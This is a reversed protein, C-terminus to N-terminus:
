NPRDPRGQPRTNCGKGKWWNQVWVPASGFTEGAIIGYQQSAEQCSSPNLWTMPAEGTKWLNISFAGPDTYTLGYAGNFTGIYDSGWPDVGRQAQWGYPDIRAGYANDGWASDIVQFDHYREGTLNTLRTTSMHLHSGSCSGKCGATGIVQGERVTDGTRVATTDMHAYYTVFREQYVGAGVAHVIYTEPQPVPGGYNRERAALVTGAAVARIPRGTEMMWDYGEHSDQFDAPDWFRGYRDIIRAPAGVRGFDRPDFQRDFAAYDFGSTVAVYHDPNDLGAQAAYPKVFIPLNVPSVVFVCGSRGRAREFLAAIPEAGYGVEAQTFDGCRLLVNNRGDRAWLGARETTGGPSSRQMADCPDAGDWSLAWGGTPWKMSCYHGYGPPEPTVPVNMTIVAPQAAAPAAICVAAALLLLARRISAMM